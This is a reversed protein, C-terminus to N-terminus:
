QTSVEAQAFMGATTEIPPWPIQATVEMLCPGPQRLAQSLTRSLDQLCEVLEVAGAARQRCESWIRDGLEKVERARDRSPAAGRCLNLLGELAPGAHGVVAASVEYNRGIEAPDIDIHILQEPM